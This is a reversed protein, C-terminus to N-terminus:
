TPPYFQTALSVTAAATTVPIEIQPHLCAWALFHPLDSSDSYAMLAAKLHRHFHEVLGNSMPHYSTTRSRAIDLLRCLASFLVGEFQRGRATTIIVPCGFHFLWGNVFSM